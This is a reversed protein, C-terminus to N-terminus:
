RSFRTRRAGDADGGGGRHGVRDCLEWGGEDGAGDWLGSVMAPLANLAAALQAATADHTLGAATNDSTQAGTGLQLGWTGSEPRADIFGIAARM